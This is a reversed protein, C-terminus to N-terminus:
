YSPIRKSPGVRKRAIMSINIIDRQRERESLVQSQRRGVRVGVDESDGELRSRGGRSVTDELRVKREVSSRFHASGRKRCCPLCNWAISALKMMVERLSGVSKEFGM